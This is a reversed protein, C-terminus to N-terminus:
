TTCHSAQRVPQAARHDHREEVLLLVQGREEFGDVPLRSARVRQDEDVVSRGVPGGRQRGRERGRARPHPRLPARRALQAAIAQDARGLQCREQPRVLPEVPGIVDDGLHVGVQPERRVVHGAHHRRELGVLAEAHGAGVEVGVVAAPPQLALAMGGVVHAPRRAEVAPATQDVDRRQRDHEAPVAAVLYAGAGAAPARPADLRGALRADVQAGRARVVTAQPRVLAPTQAGVCDARM